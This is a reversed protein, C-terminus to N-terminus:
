PGPKQKPWQQFRCVETGRESIFSDLLTKEIENLKKFHEPFEALKSEEIPKISKFNYLSQYFGRMEDLIEKPTNIKKGDELKLEKINKSIFNYNELNLFYKSPKEGQVYDKLRARIFSGRLKIDRIEELERKKEILNVRMAEDSIDLCYLEELNEIEKTLLEERNSRDRKRKAANSIFIGRLHSLLVEWFAEIEFMLSINNESFQKVFSPAYPTCAHVEIMLLFGEEIRKILGPDNLLEANLKWTGKGRTSKDINLILGIKCHDSRYKFSIYCDSFIDLITSSILFFDLRAAKM